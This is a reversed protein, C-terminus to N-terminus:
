QKSKSFSPSTRRVWANETETAPSAAPWEVSGKTTLIRKQDRSWLPSAWQTSLTEPLEPVEVEEQSHRVCGLTSVLDDEQIDLSEKLKNRKPDKIEKELTSSAVFDDDQADLSEKFKIRELNKIEKEPTLTSVLDDEQTDLSPNLIRAMLLKETADCWEVSGEFTVIRKRDTSLTQLEPDEEQGLSTVLDDVQADLSEIFMIGELDQIEGQLTVTSVPDDQTELSERLKIGKLGKFEKEITLRITMMKVTEKIWGSLETAEIQTKHASFAEDTVHIASCLMGIENLIQRMLARFEKPLQVRTEQRKGGPWYASPVMNCSQIFAQLRRIRSCELKCVGMIYSKYMQLERFQDEFENELENDIDRRLEKLGKDIEAMHEKTSEFDMSVVRLRDEIASFDEIASGNTKDDCETPDEDDSNVENEIKAEPYEKPDSQKDHCGMLKELQELEHLYGQYSRNCSEDIDIDECQMELQETKQLREMEEIELKELREMEELELKELWIEEPELQKRMELKLQEVAALWDTCGPLDSVCGPTDADNSVLSVNTSDEPIKYLIESTKAFVVPIVLKGGKKTKM